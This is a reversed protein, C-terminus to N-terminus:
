EFSLPVRRSLYRRHVEELTTDRGGPLSVPTRGAAISMCSWLVVVVMLYLLLMRLFM